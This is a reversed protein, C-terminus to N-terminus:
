AGGEEEWSMILQRSEDMIIREDEDDHTLAPFMRASIRPKALTRTAKELPADIRLLNEIIVETMSPAKAEPRGVLYRALWDRAQADGAIAMSAAGECIERWKEMGVVDSLIALYASETKRKPRGPGGANGSLFRGQSNRQLSTTM